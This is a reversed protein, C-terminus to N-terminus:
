FLYEAIKTFLLETNLPKWLVDDCGAALLDAYNDQLVGATIALIIPDDEAADLWSSSVDDTHRCAWRKRLRRAIEYGDYDPLHIDLLILQPHWEECRNLAEIGNKAEQVDYQPKSQFWQNLLARTNEEDDVILVRYVTPDNTPNSSSSGVRSGLGDDTHTGVEVSPVSPVPDDLDPPSPALETFLPSAIQIPVQLLFQSGQGYVSSAKITGQMLEIYQRALALGLGSGKGMREGALAQVFPQFLKKLEVQTLGPGTDEVVCELVSTSNGSTDGSSSKSQQICQVLLHVSGTETFKIANGILNILIQRLKQADIAIWEPLSDSEILQLDLQKTLAQAQFMQIIDTLLNHLHITEIKLNVAGTEIKSLELVTNILALLHEGSHNITDAYGKERNPLDPSRQLLEGFGLIATLPTRLEHSITALFKSKARNAFEAEIRAQELAQNQQRLEQTRAQVTQELVYNDQRLKSWLLYGQTVLWASILAFLPSVLPIWYCCLFFLYTVGVLGGVLSPICLLHRWNMSLTRNCFVGLGAWLFIWLWEASEPWTRLPSRGELASTVLQAALNAHIEVGAWTTNIQESYPTFFRDGWSSEAKMGVLIIKNHLLPKLSAKPRRNNLVSRMSLTQVGNPIRLYNALIQYGGVDVNVYGGGNSKLPSFETKGLRIRNHGLDEPVTNFEQELYLLALKAGLSFKTQNNHRISLIHRRIHGDRDLVLDNFAVQTSPNLGPPPAIAVSAGQGIAKEIGIVNPTSQFVQQLEATGPAIPLDRYLDLGIVVPDYQNLQILLQALQADSFPWQGISAIDDDDVTVIVVPPTYPESRRQRFSYDLIAWELLQLIGLGQIGLALSTTVFTIGLLAWFPHKSSPQTSSLQKLSTRQNNELNLM